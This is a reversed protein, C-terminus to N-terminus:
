TAPNTRSEQELPGVLAGALAVLGSLDEVAGGLHPTAIADTGRGRLDALLSRDRGARRREDDALASLKSWGSAVPGSTGVVQVLDPNKLGRTQAWSRNLIYGGFPVGLEDIKAHFFRAEALASPEPSTVLLFTAESSTLLTRVAEAHARMGGFMGSFAGLFEQLEEHFGAGFIRTFVTSILSSAAARLAGRSPLFMGVVREDLFGALKRPAELFELANRSPPTDLVILDYRRDEALTYLAEAATYEQMGAVLESVHQYLRNALILRVRDEDHALRRVMGEFVVTPNLMWAHLTGQGTVGAAALRDPPIPSPARASEPIGMAEALRRAPDITLVLVNRGLMAGALGLAASTTTKGVGGAGCCVVVRKDRVLPELFSALGARAFPLDVPREPHSPSGTM